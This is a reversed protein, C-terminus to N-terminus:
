RLAIELEEIFQRVSMPRRASDVAFAREFFAQASPSLVPAEVGGDPSGSIAMQSRSDASLAFPHTGTLMEFAVVALAWVDWTEDPVRGRRQEPSMYAPTGVVAGTLTHGVTDSSGPNLPKVLGFDLIKAIQGHASTSTSTERLNPGM